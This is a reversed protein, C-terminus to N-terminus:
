KTGGPETEAESAKIALAAKLFAVDAERCALNARAVEVAAVAAQDGSEIARDWAYDASARGERVAEEAERIYSGIVDITKSSM